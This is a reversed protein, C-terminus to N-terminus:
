RFYFNVYNSTTGNNGIVTNMGSPTIAAGDNSQTWTIPQNQSSGKLILVNSGMTTYSSNPFYLYNSTYAEFCEYLTNAAEKYTETYDAAPYGTFSIKYTYSNKKSATLTMVGTLQTGPNVDIATGHFYNNNLAGWNAIDYRAGNINGWELVPQMFTNGDGSEMGNWLFYTQYSPTDIYEPNNPVVWTTSFSSITSGSPVTYYTLYGNGLTGGTAAAPTKVHNFVGSLARGSRLPATAFQEDFKGYDALIAGSASNVKTIRGGIISIENGQEVLHVQSAPVRGFPTSVLGDVQVQATKNTVAAKQSIQKSCGSFIGATLLLSVVPFLFNSKKM